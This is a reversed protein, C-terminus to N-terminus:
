VREARESFRNTKSIEIQPLLASACPKGYITEDLWKKEEELKEKKITTWWCKPLNGTGDSWRYRRGKLLNKKDFPANIACIMHEVKDANALLM